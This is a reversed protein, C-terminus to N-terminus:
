LGDLGDLFFSTLFWRYCLCQIIAYAGVSGCRLSCIRVESICAYLLHIKFYYSVFVLYYNVTFSRYHLVTNNIELPALACGGGYLRWPQHYCISRLVLVNDVSPTFFCFCYIVALLFFYLFFSDVGVDALTYQTVRPVHARM